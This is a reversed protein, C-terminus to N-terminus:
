STMDIKELHCGYLRRRNQNLSLMLKLLHFDIQMGFKSSIDWDVFSSGTKSFSPGGYQFEVEWKLKSRHTTMPMYNQMWQWTEYGVIPLPTIVDYGNKLHRGYLRLDLGPNLNLTPVHNLLHIDIQTRFKSTIDVASIFSSGTEYFPRGGYKTNRNQGLKRWRRTMRRQGVLNRLFQVVRPPTIVDYRSIFIAVPLWTPKSNSRSLILGGAFHLQQDWSSGRNQVQDSKYLKPSIAFKINRREPKFNGIWPWKPLPNPRWILPPTPGV